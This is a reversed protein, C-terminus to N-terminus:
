SGSRTLESDYRAYMFPAMAVIPEIQKYQSLFVLLGSSASPPPECLHNCSNIESVSHDVLGSPCGHYRLLDATEECSYGTETALPRCARVEGIWDNQVILFAARQTILLIANVLSKLVPFSHMATDEVESFGVLFGKRYRASLQLNTSCHRHKTAPASLRDPLVRRTPSSDKRHRTDLM